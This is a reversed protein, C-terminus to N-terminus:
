EEIRVYKELALFGGSIGAVVGALFLTNLATYLETWTQPAGFSITIAVGLFTTIFGRLFRKCAIVLKDKFSM